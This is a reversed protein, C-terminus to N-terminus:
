LLNSHKLEYIRIILNGLKWFRKNDSSHLCFWFKKSEAQKFLPQEIPILEQRM